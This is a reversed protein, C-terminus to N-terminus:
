PRGASTKKEKSGNLKATLTNRHIHLIAAAKRKNGNVLDLVEGIHRKEFAHVADKLRMSRTSEAPSSPIDLHNEKVPLYGEPM